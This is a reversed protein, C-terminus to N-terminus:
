AAREESFRAVFFDSPSLDIGERKAAELVQPQRRAPIFGRKKWGAVVSQSCGLSLALREQTRFKAIIQDAQTM